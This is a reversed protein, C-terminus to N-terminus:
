SRLIDYSIRITQGKAKIKRITIQQIEGLSSVHTGGCPIGFDGFLVVRTPKGEPINDPVFRCIAKMDEKDVFQISTQRNEQIMKQCCQELNKILQEKDFGELTGIYEVYPGEPFHFGKGPIWALKLADVAMDVVHGASHLRSHLNRRSEDVVCKVTEGVTITGHPITGIHRVVGDVFRVEQVALAGHPGEIVGQDYPQGGGQPYFITQDLVVVWQSEEPTVELVTAEDTLLCFHELYRLTTHQM